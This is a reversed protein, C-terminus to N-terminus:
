FLLFLSVKLVLLSSVVMSSGSNVQVTSSTEKQIRLNELEQNLKTVENELEKIRAQQELAQSVKKELSEQLTVVTLNCSNAQTEAQLLSDQTRTLQRQLLHTTNRCEAQARLGDRCAVSNATVAFYITLIVLTVGFLVVLIAAGLWQRHSGWGQKGGMEDMPVPLYHYFSPAM